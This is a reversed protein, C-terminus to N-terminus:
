DTTEHSVTSSVETRETVTLQLVKLLDVRRLPRHPGTCDNFRLSFFPFFSASLCM